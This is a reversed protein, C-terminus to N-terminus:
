KAYLKGIIPDQALLARGQETLPKGKRGGARRWQEQAYAELARAAEMDLAESLPMMRGSLTRIAPDPTPKTM